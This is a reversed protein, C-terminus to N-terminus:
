YPNGDTSCISFFFVYLLITWLSVNARIESWSPFVEFGQMLLWYILGASILVSALLKKILNSRM